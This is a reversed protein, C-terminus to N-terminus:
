NLIYHLLDGKLDFLYFKSGLLPIYEKTSIFSHLPKKVCGYNYHNTLM